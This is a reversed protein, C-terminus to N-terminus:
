PTYLLQGIKDTIMASDKPLSNDVTLIPVDFKAKASGAMIAKKSEPSFTRYDSEEKAIIDEM